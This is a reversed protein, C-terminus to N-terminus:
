WNSVIADLVCNEANHLDVLSGSTIGDGLVAFWIDKDIALGGVSGRQKEIVKRSGHQPGARPLRLQSEKTRWSHCLTTLNPHTAKNTSKLYSTALNGSEYAQLENLQLPYQNAWSNVM